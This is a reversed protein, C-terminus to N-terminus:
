TGGRRPQLLQMWRAAREAADALWAETNAISEALTCPGPALPIVADVGLTKALSLLDLEPAVRGVIAGVPVGAKRARGAVGAIAKGGLTQTDLQGEGTLVLDADYLIDDFHIADLVIEIGSRLVAQPFLWLLGAATGGAAGAGPVARRDVGTAQTLVDAYHTLAQDLLLVDEESAGKQPGFVASAGREGTLPNDVDCAIIIELEPLRQATEFDAMTLNALAAGGAPLENGSDDLLRVGMAQLLGAGGDNTASGGLAFILRCLNPNRAIARLVLEGVGRTTTRRPDHESLPVQPLGAAQALEIVATEGDGLVAWHALVPKGQPGAVPETILTGATAYVMARATGEGGDAIPYTIMPVDPWVRKLGRAIAAAARPADVAGKFSDPAIIIKNM